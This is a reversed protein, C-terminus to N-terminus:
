LKQIKHLDLGNHAFLYWAETAFDRSIKKIHWGCSFANFELHKPGSFVKHNGPYARIYPVLNVLNKIAGADLLHCMTISAGDIAGGVSLYCNNDQLVFM